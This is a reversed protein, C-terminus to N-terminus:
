KLSLKRLFRQLKLPLLQMNNLTAFKIGGKTQRHRDSLSALISPEVNPFNELTSSPLVVAARRPRTLGECVDDVGSM